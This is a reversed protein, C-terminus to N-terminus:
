SDLTVEGKKGEIGKVPLCIWFTTGKNVESEFNITGHLAKVVEKALYMGLGNGDPEVKVVNSARFFKQFLKKQEDAPIGYGTDSIQVILNDEKKSVYISIEGKAPTYKISNTLLNMLVNRLLRPDTKVHELHPHVSVLINHGKQKYRQEMEKLVSQVLEGINTDVPEVIIRGSEIRSINLLSNVLSIMRKTSADINKMFELQEDTLIGADGELLMETFWRIASLPTRLQHSALSIFESKMRDVDKEYTIDRVIGVGAIIKGDHLVPTMTVAIPTSSGDKRLFRYGSGILSTSVTKGEALAIYMPRANKELKNSNSDTIEIVDVLEKGSLNELKEGFLKEGAPNVMLIHASPDVVVVTDGISELVAQYKLESELLEKTAFEAKREARWGSTYLFFITGATIATLLSGIVLVMFPQVKQQVSLHYDRPAEMRIKLTGSPVPFDIEQTFVGGQVGQFAKKRFLINRHSTDYIEINVDDRLFLDSFLEENRFSVSVFGKVSKRRQEITELPTGTPYVPNIILFVPVNTIVSVLVPSMIMKGTDRATEMTARRTEDGLYDLGLVSENELEYPEIYKLVYYAERTAQPHIAFSPFGAPSKTTDTRVESVFQEKNAHSVVEIYNVKNIGPFNSSKDIGKVYQEWEKRTVTESSMLFSSASYITSTYLAMRIRIRDQIDNMKLEFENRAHDLQQKKEYNWIGYTAALLSSILITVFLTLALRKMPVNHSTYLRFAFLM